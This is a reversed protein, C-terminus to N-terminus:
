MFDLYISLRNNKYEAWIMGGMHEVLTKAIALGLGTSTRATEVTYFRNFLQGVQIENLESAYNSFIIRGSDKLIINLDGDSYKLANQLLNSFVRILDSKELYRMVKNESIEIEPCINKQQFVTYFAVISEELIENICVMEKITDKEKSVIVSYQFLEETLQKLTELRNEIINLYRHSEETQAQQKLLDVYGLIATLPTRLDHSINTVANKLEIDGQQFRNREERLKCLENNISYALKRMYKDDTSIGILTNTDSMLKEQFELEIEKAAKRLLYIKLTLIVTLISLCCICIWLWIEM